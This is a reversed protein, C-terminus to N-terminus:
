ELTISDWQSLKLEKRKSELFRYVTAHESGNLIMDIATEAIGLEELTGIIYVTNNLISIETNTLEEIIRRTKGKSGILRARLRRIHKPNKGVYDRIDFGKLYFDEDLLKLARDPAFGRGIAKIIDIVKLVMVPDEANETDITVDGTESDIDLAAGSSEELKLKIKGNKGILVGVREKPIKVFQM